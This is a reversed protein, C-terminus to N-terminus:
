DFISPAVMVYLVYDSNVFRVNCEAFPALTQYNIDSYFSSCVGYNLIQTRNQLYYDGYEAIVSKVSGNYVTIWGEISVLINNVGAVDQWIMRMTMTATIGDSNLDASNSEVKTTATVQYTNNGVGRAKDDFTEIDEIVITTELPIERGDEYVLAANVANKIQCIEENSISNSYNIIKIDKTEKTAAYAVNPSLNICMIIALCCAVVCRRIMILNGKENDQIVIILM